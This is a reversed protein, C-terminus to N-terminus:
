KVGLMEKIQDICGDGFNHIEIAALALLGIPFAVLAWTVFLVLAVPGLICGVIFNLIGKFM